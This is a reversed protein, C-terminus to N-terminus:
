KGEWYQKIAHATLKFQERHHYECDNNEKLIKEIEKKDMLAKIQVTYKDRIKDNRARYKLSSKEWLAFDERIEDFAKDLIEKITKM